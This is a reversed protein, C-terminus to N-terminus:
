KQHARIQRAFEEAIIRNAWGRHHAASHQNDLPLAPIAAQVSSTRPSWDAFAIGKQIAWSKLWDYSSGEDGWSVILFSNHERAYAALRELVPSELEAISPVRDGLQMQKLAEERLLKRNRDMLFRTARYGLQTNNRLWRLPADMSAWGSDGRFLQSYRYGSRFMLDDEFDNNCGLYLIIAPNGIKEASRQLALLSQEGGYGGLGLNVVAYRKAYFGEEDRNLSLDLQFPYSMDAPLGLGQTYSDGVAFVLTKYGEFSDQFNVTGLVNVKSELQFDTTKFLHLGPRLVAGREADYRSAESIGARYKPRLYRLAVEALLLGIAVSVIVLIIRLTFRRAFTM